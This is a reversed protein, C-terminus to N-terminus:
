SLTVQFPLPEGKLGAIINKAALAAMAGRAEATASGIHPLVAVTPMNLLPNDPAMPEPNTVDLGAGWIWGKDLAMILDEEKHIAGRAANVFIASPKMRQFAERNFLGKTEETLASHLSLVDSRKLLEEFSVKVAGLQEEAEQNRTRNHYLIDMDYAAKCKRAMAFGIQGLGFIGLTKHNLEMGLNATPQFFGWEGKQITKHLYFARRSAALMLLFAVDASANSLVGPTHGIPIEVAFAAPIDVKDYGASMLSIVKLHRCERFFKADLKNSGAHLLADSQRCGDILEQETLERQETHETLTYGAEKLLNRGAEPILRTIFVNM